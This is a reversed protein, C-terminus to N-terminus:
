ARAYRRLLAHVRAALKDGDLPKVIHDDAGARLGKLETEVDDDGTILAIPLDRTDQRGRLARTIEYGDLGPLHVDLLLVDPREPHVMSMADKPDTATIVDFDDMLMAAVSACVSADDDVVLVVPRTRTTQEGPSAPIGCDPCSRWGLELPRSCGDCTPLGLKTGCWPCRAFEPQVVHACVPCTGEDAEVDPPVVRLLEELSTLGETARLFGEERLSRMGGRHAARRIETSSAGKLLLDRVLADVPLVEFLGVRGRYGTDACHGCGAGTVFTYRDLESPNLRLQLIERETPVHEVKCHQCVRRVLRQAVVMTLSGTVLWPPVGLDRLRVVASPADNTHLTSLVLHGTMSAQAALEATERDRIEGVMVIDPDQRLVSRLCRAFTRGIREVIQTQNVGPLEYEIPDELTIINRSSDALRGLAAYLTSTKGSGTPGTILVLGQPREIAGLLRARQDADMGIEDLPLREAGKRLIRLVVTEGWLSPLSSVRLDVEEAPAQFRARGDQPLRREAIDMSAMLKLRAVFQGQASRPVTTADRLVGDIRYRVTAGGSGPEVHIDSANAAIAEAIVSDVLRIMPADAETLRELLEDEDEEEVEIAGVLEAATDDLGYTRRLASELESWAAVVVRLSRVGTAMRVDDLSVVDIPDSSAVVLTGDEEQALPLVHYRRALTGALKSAAEPDCHLAAGSVFDIGLQAALIEAVESETAFGLRVIAQGLRERRGDATRRRSELAEALEDERLIGAHVLLEGLQKRQTREEFETIAM